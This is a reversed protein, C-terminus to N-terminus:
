RLGEIYSSVAKIEEDSMHQAISEMMENPSNTRKGTKFANLQLEIYQANQGALRPFKAPENGKGDPGHCALCATVGTKINGGRYIKEGLALYEPRAQGLTQTETSYFTALNIIDDDTLDSTMGYMSPEYRPGKEGMRYDKLQKVLYDKYQGALKPWNPVTANGDKNHCTECKKRDAVAKGAEVAKAVEPSLPLKEVKPEDKPSAPASAVEGNAPPTAQSDVVNDQATGLAYPVWLLNILLLLSLRSKM